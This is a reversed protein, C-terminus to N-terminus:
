RRYRKGESEGVLKLAVALNAEIEDVLSDIEEATFEQNLDDLTVGRASAGKTGYNAKLGALQVRIQVVESLDVSGRQILLYSAIHIPSFDYAHIGCCEAVCIAQCRNFLNTLPPDLKM